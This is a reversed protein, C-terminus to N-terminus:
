FLEGVFAELRPRLESPVKAALVAREGFGHVIVYTARMLAGGLAASGAADDGAAAGLASVAALPQLRQERVAGPVHVRARLPELLRLPRLRLEVFKARHGILFQDRTDLHSAM